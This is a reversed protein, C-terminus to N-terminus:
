LEYLDRLRPGPLPASGKRYKELKKKSLWRSFLHRIDEDGVYFGVGRQTVFSRLFIKVLPSLGIGFQSQCKAKALQYLESDMRITLQRNNAM